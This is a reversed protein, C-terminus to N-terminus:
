GGSAQAGGHPSREELLAGLEPAAADVILRAIRGLQAIQEEDLVDVVLRRAERVHAPATAVVTVMGADTLVVETRRPGGTVARRTVWGKRELRDVAHSLRSLSGSAFLALETMPLARGPAESLGALVLYEFRNMGADRRLQADVAAPLTEIMANLAM